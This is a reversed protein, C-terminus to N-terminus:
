PLYIAETFIHRYENFYVRNKWKKCITLQSSLKKTTYIKESKFERNKQEQEYEPNISSVNEKNKQSIKDLQYVNSINSNALKKGLNLSESNSNTFKFNQIRTKYSKKYFTIMNKRSSPDSSSRLDFMIKGTDLKMSYLGLEDHFSIKLIRGNYKPKKLVSNLGAKKKKDFFKEWGLDTKTFLLLKEIKPSIKELKKFLDLQNSISTSFCESFDFFHLVICDLNLFVNYMQFVLSNQFHFDSRSLGNMDLIQLRFFSTQMHGMQIFNSHKVSGGVKINARTTKNLFASKGVKSAGSLIISKRHPDLEPLKILHRRVKELFILPRNLKQIITCMRGLSEKKLQKCAYPSNGNKILKVFNRGTVDIIRKSKSIRSLALKYHQRQFMLNLLGGFFPHIYDISPFSNVTDTLQGIFSQQVFKVKRIYFRRIGEIPFRKHVVTPTKRQTGSLVKNIVARSDLIKKM